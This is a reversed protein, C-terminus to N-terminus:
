QVVFYLSFDASNNREASVRMLNLPNQRTSKRQIRFKLSIGAKFPYFHVVTFIGELIESNEESVM